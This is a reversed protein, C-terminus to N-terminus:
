RLALSSGFLRQRHDIPLHDIIHWPRRDPTSLTINHGHRPRHIHGDHNFAIAMNNTLCPPPQRETGSGYYMDSSNRRLDWDWGNKDLLNKLLVLKVSHGVNAGTCQFACVFSPSAMAGRLSDLRGNKVGHGRNLWEDYLSKAESSGMVGHLVGHIARIGIFKRAIECSKAIM